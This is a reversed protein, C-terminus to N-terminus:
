LIDQDASSDYQDDISCRRLRITRIFGLFSLYISICLCILTRWSLPEDGCVLYPTSPTRATSVYMDTERNASDATSCQLFYRVFCRFVPFGQGFGWIWRFRRARSNWGDVAYVIVLVWKRNEEEM